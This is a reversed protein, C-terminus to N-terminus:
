LPARTRRGHAPLPSAARCPAAWGPLSSLPLKRLRLLVDLAFCYTSYAAVQTHNKVGVIVEVAALVHQLAAEMDGEILALAARLAGLASTTQPNRKVVEEKVM